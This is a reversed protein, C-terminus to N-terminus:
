KKDEMTKFFDDRYREDCILEGTEGDTITVNLEPYKDWWARAKEMWRKKEEEHCQELYLAHNKYYETRQNGIVIGSLAGQMFAEKNDADALINKKAEYAEEIRERIPKEKYRM